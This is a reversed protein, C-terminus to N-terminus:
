FVCRVTWFGYIRILDRTVAPVRPSTGTFSDAGQKGNGAMIDWHHVSISQRAAILQDLDDRLSGPPQFEKLFTYQLAPLVTVGDGALVALASMVPLGLPETVLFNKVGM